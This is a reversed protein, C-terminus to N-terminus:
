LHQAVLLIVMLNYEDTLPFSSPDGIALVTAVVFLSAVFTKM